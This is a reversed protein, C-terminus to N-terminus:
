KALRLDSRTQVVALSESVGNSPFLKDAEVKFKGQYVGLIVYADDIIPGTYKELFVIARDGPQLVYNGNMTYDIEGQKGGTELITLTQVSGEYVQTVHTESVTFVVGSYNISKSNKVEIEAVVDADQYLEQVHHYGKVVSAQIDIPGTKAVENEDRDITFLLYALGVMALAIVMVVSKVGKATMNM